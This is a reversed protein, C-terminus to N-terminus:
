HTTLKLCPFIFHLFSSAEGLRDRAGLLFGVVASVVTYFVYIDLLYIQLSFPFLCCFFLLFFVGFLFMLTQALWFKITLIQVWGCVILVGHVLGNFGLYRYNIYLM